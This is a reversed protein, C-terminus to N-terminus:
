TATTVEQPLSDAAATEETDSMQRRFYRRAYCIVISKVWGHANDKGNPERLNQRRWIAEGRVESVMDRKM